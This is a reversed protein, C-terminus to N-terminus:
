ERNPSLGADPRLCHAVEKEDDSDDHKEDQASKVHAKAVPKLLVEMSVMTTEIMATRSKM